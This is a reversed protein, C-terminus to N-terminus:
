PTQLHEERRPKHKGNIMGWKGRRATPQNTSKTAALVKWKGELHANRKLVDACHLNLYLSVQAKRLIQFKETQREKTEPVEACKQRELEGVVEFTSILQSNREADSNMTKIILM